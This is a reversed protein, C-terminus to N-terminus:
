VCWANSPSAFSLAASRATVVSIWSRCLRSNGTNWVFAFGKIMTCQAWAQSPRSYWLFKHLEIIDLLELWDLLDFFSIQFSWVDYWLWIMGYPRCTHFLHPKRAKYLDQMKSSLDEDDIYGKILSMILPELPHTVQQGSNLNCECLEPLAYWCYTSDWWKLNLLYCECDSSSIRCQLNVMFRLHAPESLLFNYERCCM